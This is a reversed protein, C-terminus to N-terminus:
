SAIKIITKGSSTFNIVERAVEELEEFGREQAAYDDLMGILDRSIMEWVEKRESSSVYVSNIGKLTIGRLIFPMVTTTFEAGATVGCCTVMSNAKMQSIVTALLPGGATDIAGDWQQSDLVKPDEAFEERTQLSVPNFKKAQDMRSRRTIAHLKYGLINCMAASASGVGSGVSTVLIDAGQDIGHKQLAMISLCATFGSTGFTMAQASDMNSPLHLCFVAPLTTYEAMGGDIKEGLGFGTAIVKDGEKFNASKSAVVAGALDIGPVCRPVRLINGAGVIAAADKYNMSSYEVKVTIEDDAPEKWPVEVIQARENAEKPHQEIMWARYSAVM